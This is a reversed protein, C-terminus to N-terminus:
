LIKLVSQDDAVKAPEGILVQIANCIHFAGNSNSFVNIPHIKMYLTAAKQKGNPKAIFRTGELLNDFKLDNNKKM